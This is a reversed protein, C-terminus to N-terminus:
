VFIMVYSWNWQCVLAGQQKGVSNWVNIYSSFIQTCHKVTHSLVYSYCFTSCCSNVVVFPQTTVRL